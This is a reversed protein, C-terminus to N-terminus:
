KKKLLKTEVYSLVKEWEGIPVPKQLALNVEWPIDEPAPLNGSVLIVPTAPSNAKVAKALEIGNMGPMQLDTVVLDFPKTERDELFYQLGIEGTSAVEVKHGLTFEFLGCTLELMSREDDVVLIRM